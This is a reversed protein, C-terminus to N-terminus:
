YLFGFLWLPIKNGFGFEIDDAAVYANEIGEIQKFSKEKGGIEIIYKNDILFDGFQPLSLTHKYKLQNAFFIERLTGINVSDNQLIFMLNTNNLYLKTPKQLKSLGGSENNLHITLEAEELYHLYALLTARNIGIKSSIKTINPTFPVSETLIVLLQKIRHIYAIELNRLLPLEIELIMNVVENLRQNFLEKEEKYFPYYGMKLYSDFHVFPKIEKLIQQSINIHNNLIEELHIVPLNIGKEIAIYERFSLGQMTYIIARRSLDARANLIELLSSGTFVIQLDTYDDYINKIEQSWNPYKHVEDLFLYKGGKKIFSEVLDVLSNNSFWISDLSIYLTKELENSHKLKIYQLLLTTKGIGRAGKIGILRAKWNIDNILSRTFETSVLQLKQIYKEFLKEM